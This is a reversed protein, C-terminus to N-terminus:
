LKNIGDGYGTDRIEEKGDQPKSGLRERLLSGAAALEDIRGTATRPFNMVTM